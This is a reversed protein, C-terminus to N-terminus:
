VHGGAWGECQMRCPPDILFDLSSGPLVLLWLLWGAQNGGGCCKSSDLSGSSAAELCAGLVQGRSTPAAKGAADWAESAGGKGGWIWSPGLTQTPEWAQGCGWTWPGASGLGIELHNRCFSLWLWTHKPFLPAKSRIIGLQNDGDIVNEQYNGLEGSGSPPATRAHSLHPTVSLFTCGRAKWVSARQPPTNQKSGNFHFSCLWPTHPPQPPAPPQSRLSLTPQHLSIKPRAGLPVGAM